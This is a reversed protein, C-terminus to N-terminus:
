KSQSSPALYAQRHDLRAAHNAKVSLSHLKGDSSQPVFALNYEHRVIQAIEAYARDFDKSSKPLYLRGGTSTAFLRLSNEGTQLMPALRALAERQQKSRKHHKPTQTLVNSTSVSLVRVESALIRNQFAAADDPPASDVGSGILVITKKGPVKQLWDFIALLSRSLNLDGSGVFFNIGRLALRAEAKNDSLEFQVEAGSSYCVIAVRDQPALSAILADAKQINAAGSLIVSPGCELMLIVQAPDDNALFGSIPQEVGNDFVHFDSQKLGEVFNGSKDTAIVGVNVRSVEVRIAPAQQDQAASLFPALVALFLFAQRVATRCARM